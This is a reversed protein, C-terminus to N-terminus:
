SEIVTEQIAMSQNQLAPCESKDKQDAKRENSNSPISLFQLLRIILIWRRRPPVPILHSAIILSKKAQMKSQLPSNRGLNLKSTGNTSNPDVLVRTKPEPRLSEWSIGEIWRRERQCESNLSPSHLLYWPSSKYHIRHRVLALSGPTIKTHSFGTNLSTSVLVYLSWQLGELQEKLQSGCHYGMDIQIGSSRWMCGKHQTRGKAAQRQVEEQREGLQTWRARYHTM